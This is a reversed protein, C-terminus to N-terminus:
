GSPSGMGLTIRYSRMPMPYGLIVEYQENLLNNIEVKVTWFLDAVGVRARVGVNVTRYSPLFTVDDETCYRYGVFSYRAFGGIQRITPSTLDITSFASVSFTQRPVYVLFANAAPDGPFDPSVKRSDATSYDAELTLVRRPLEWRYLSEIGRSRVHRLNKPSVAGAGAAVWVIRDTMDNTFFSAQVVHQGVAACSLAGGADVSTSSEPKLGPNGVGGEGNFYLENFTPIRFNRSVNFRLSPTVHNVGAADFEGFTVLGGCQPSWRPSMGSVMDLRLSPFFSVRAQSGRVPIIEGAAYSGWQQRTVRRTLSNGDAASRVLESGVGLRFNEGLSLDAHPEVRLDSNQFYTDVISGDISLRSDRYREYALHLQASCGLSVVDSPLASFSAQLLNDKDTQRAVSASYLSVVPGGVGRESSMSLAQVTIRAKGSVAMEGFIQGYRSAMDANQRTLTSVLPGNRFAFPFDGDSREEGYGARLIGAEGSLSGSVHYRKFGFSGYSMEATAANHVDRPRTVINILGAVADAGYLASEGGRLVEVSEIEDNSLLGLDTLGNQTSSIRLGDLLILTHESGLGRQSITKVASVPGYDKIFIGAMPELLDALSVGNSSQIDEKRLVTVFSPTYCETQPVRSAMVTIGNWLYVNGNGSDPLLPAAHERTDPNGSFVSDIIQFSTSLDRQAPLGVALAPLKWLTVCAIVVLYCHMCLCSALTRNARFGM